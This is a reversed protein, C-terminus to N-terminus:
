VLDLAWGAEQGIPVPPEKRRTFPLPTFSNAWRWTTGVNLISPAIGGSELVDEHRPAENFV